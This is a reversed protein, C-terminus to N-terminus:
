NKADLTEYVGAEVLQKYAAKRTKKLGDFYRSLTRLTTGKSPHCAILGSRVESRLMTLTMAIQFNARDNDDKFTIM